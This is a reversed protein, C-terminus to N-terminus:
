VIYVFDVNMSYSYRSGHGQGSQFKLLTSTLENLLELHNSLFLINQICM